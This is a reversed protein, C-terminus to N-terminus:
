YSNDTIVKLKPFGPLLLAHFPPNCTPKKTKKVMNPGIKQAICAIIKDM